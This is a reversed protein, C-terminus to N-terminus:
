VIAPYPASSASPGWPGTVGSSSSSSRYIPQYNVNVPASAFGSFPTSSAAVSPMTSFPSGTSGASGSWPQIMPTSGYTSFAALSYGGGRSGSLSTGTDLTYHDTGYFSSSNGGGLVFSGYVAPPEVPAQTDPTNTNSAVELENYQDLYRTRFDLMFSSIAARSDDNYFRPLAQGTLDARLGMALYHFDTGTVGSGTGRFANRARDYEAHATEAYALTLTRVRRDRGFVAMLEPSLGRGSYEAMLAQRRREKEDMSINPLAFIANIQGDLRRLDGILGSLHERSMGVNEGMSEAIASFELSIWELREHMADVGLQTRDYHTDHVVSMNTQNSRYAAVQHTIYDQTMQKQTAGLMESFVQWRVRDTDSLGGQQNVDVFTGNRYQEAAQLVPTLDNAYVVSECFTEDDSLGKIDSFRNRIVQAVMPAMNSLRQENRLRNIVSARFGFTNQLTDFDRERLARVLRTLNEPRFYADSSSNLSSNRLSSSVSLVLYALDQNYANVGDQTRIDYFQTNTTSTTSTPM